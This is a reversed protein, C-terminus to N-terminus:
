TDIGLVLVHRTVIPHSGHFAYYDDVSLFRFVPTVPAGQRNFLEQFSIFTLDTILRDPLYLYIFPKKLWYNAPLGFSM